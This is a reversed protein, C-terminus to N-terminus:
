LLRDGLRSVIDRQEHIVGIILPKQDIKHLYFIFHYRYKTVYLEPFQNSFTKKIVSKEAIAKFKAKLGNRYKQLFPKGWNNLTYRAVAQLDQDANLSLEYPLAM